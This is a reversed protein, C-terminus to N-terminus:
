MYLCCCVVSLLLCVHVVPYLRPRMRRRRLFQCCLPVGQVSELNVVHRANNWEFRFADVMSAADYCSNYASQRDRLMCEQPFAAITQALKTAEGLASMMCLQNGSLAVVFNLLDIFQFTFNFNHM